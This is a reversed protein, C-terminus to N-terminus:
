ESETENEGKKGEEVDGDGMGEEGCGDICM